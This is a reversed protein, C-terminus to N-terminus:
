KTLSRQRSVEWRCVLVRLSRALPLAGLLSDLCVMYFDGVGGPVVVVDGASANGFAWSLALANTVRADWTGPTAGFETILLETGNQKARSLKSSSVWSPATRQRIPAPAVAPPLHKQSHPPVRLGSWRLASLLVNWLGSHPRKARSTSPNFLLNSYFGIYPTLGTQTVQLVSDSLSLRGTIGGIDLQVTPLEVGPNLYHKNLYDTGDALLSDIHIQLEPVSVSGVSSSTKNISLACNSSTINASVTQTTLNTSTVAPVVDAQLECSAIFLDIFGHVPHSVTFTLSLPLTLQLANDLSEPMSFFPRSTLNLHVRMPMDPYVSTLGSVVPWFSSTNLSIWTSNGLVAPTLFEDAFGMGWLIDLLGNLGAFDLLVGAHRSATQQASPSPLPVVPGLRSDRKVGIMNVDCFLNTASSNVACALASYPPLLLQKAAKKVYTTSEAEIQTNIVDKLKTRIYPSLLNLISGSMGGHFALDKVTLKSSVSDLALTTNTSEPATVALTLAYSPDKDPAVIIDVLLM